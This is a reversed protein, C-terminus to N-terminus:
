KCCHHDNIGNAYVYCCVQINKLNCIMRVQSIIAKTFM